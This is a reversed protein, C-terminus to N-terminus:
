RTSTPVCSCKGRCGRSFALPCGRVGGAEPFSLLSGAHGCYCRSVPLAAPLPPSHGGHAATRRRMTTFQETPFHPSSPSRSFGFPVAWADKYAKRSRTGAYHLGRKFPALVDHPPVPQAPLVTPCLLCPPLGRFGAFSPVRSPDISVLRVNPPDFRSLGFHERQSM